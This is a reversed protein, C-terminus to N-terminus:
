EDGVRGHQRRPQHLPIRRGPLRDYGPHSRGPLAVVNSPEDVDRLDVVVVVHNLARVKM